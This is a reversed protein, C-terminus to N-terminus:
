GKGHGARSSGGTARILQRVPVAAHPFGWESTADFLNSSTLSTAEAQWKLPHATHQLFTIVPFPKFDESVDMAPAILGNESLEIDAAVGDM